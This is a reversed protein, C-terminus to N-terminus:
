HAPLQIIVHVRKRLSASTDAWEQCMQLLIILYMQLLDASLSAGIALDNGDRLAEDKAIALAYDAMEGTSEWQQNGQFSTVSFGSTKGLEVGVTFWTPLRMYGRVLVRQYGEARLRRAADQIEPRLRKNWLQHDFLKRRTRPEDGEYLDVWDLAITASEPMPDRDIAQVLLIAAPEEAQLGLSQIQRKVQQLNLKRIGGTIWGRVMTVGSQIAEIDYRLGHGLMLFVAQEEWEAHLKGVRFRLDRLFKLLDPENTELHSALKRRAKGARSGPTAEALRTAV